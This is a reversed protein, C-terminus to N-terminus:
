CAVLQWYKILKLFFFKEMEELDGAPLSALLLLPHYDHGNGWQFLLQAFVVVDVWGTWV